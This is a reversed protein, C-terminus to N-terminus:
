DLEGAQLWLGQDEIRGFLLRRRGLLANLGDEAGRGRLLLGAGADAESDTAATEAADLEHLTLCVAVVTWGDLLEM